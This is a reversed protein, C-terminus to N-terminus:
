NGEKQAAARQRALRADKLRKTHSPIFAGKPTVCRDGVPAGCTTCPVTMDNM